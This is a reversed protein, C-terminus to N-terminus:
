HASRAFIATGVKGPLTYAVVTGSYFDRVLYQSGPESPQLAKMKETAEDLDNASDLWRPFGAVPLEFLDYRNEM